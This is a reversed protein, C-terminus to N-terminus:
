MKEYTETVEGIFDDSEGRYYTNIRMWGNSQITNVTINDPNISIWVDNGTSNEKGVLMTDFEDARDMLRYMGEWDSPDFKLSLTDKQENIALM